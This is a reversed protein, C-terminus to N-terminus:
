ERPANIEFFEGRQIRIFREHNDGAIRMRLEQKSLDGRAAAEAAEKVSPIHRNGALVNLEGKVFGWSIEDVGPDPFPFPEDGLIWGGKKLRSWLVKEALSYILSRNELHQAVKMKLENIDYWSSDGELAGQNIKFRIRIATKRVSWWEMIGKMTTYYKSKLGLEILREQRRQQLALTGYGLGFAEQCARSAMEISFGEAASIVKPGSGAESYWYVFDWYRDDSEEYWKELHPHLEESIPIGALMRNIEPRLHLVNERYLEERKEEVWRVIPAAPQEEWIRTVAETMHFFNVYLPDCRKRYQRRTEGKRFFNESIVRRVLVLKPTGDPHKVIAPIRSNLDVMITEPNFGNQNKGVDRPACFTAIQRRIITWEGDEYNRVMPLYKERIDNATVMRGERELVLLGRITAAGKCVTERYSGLQFYYASMTEKQSDLSFGATAMMLDRRAKNAENWTQKETETADPSLPGPDPTLKDLRAFVWDNKWVGRAERGGWDDGTARQVDAMTYEGTGFKWVGNRSMRFHGNPLDRLEEYTPYKILANSWDLKQYGVHRPLRVIHRLCGLSYYRNWARDAPTHRQDIDRNPDAPDPYQDFRRPREVFDNVLDILHDPSWWNYETEEMEDDINKGDLRGERALRRTSRARSRLQWKYRNGADFFCHDTFYKVFHLFEFENLAGITVVTTPERTVIDYTTFRDSIQPVHRDHSELGGWVWHKKGIVWDPNERRFRRWRREAMDLARKPTRYFVERTQIESETHHDDLAWFTEVTVNDIDKIRDLEKSTPKRGIIAKEEKKDNVRLLEFDLGEVEWVKEEPKVEFGGDEHKRVRKSVKKTAPEGDKLKPKKEQKGDSDFIPRGKEDKVYEYVPEDVLEHFYCRFYTVPILCRILKFRQLLYNLDRTQLQKVGMFDIVVELTPTWALGGNMVDSHSYWDRAPRANQRLEDSLADLDGMDEPGEGTTM